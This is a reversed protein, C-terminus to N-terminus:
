RCQFYAMARLRDALNLLSAGMPQTKWSLLLLPPSGPLVELSLELATSLSEWSLLSAM